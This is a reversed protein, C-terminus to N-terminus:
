LPRTHALLRQLGGTLHRRQAEDRAYTEATRAIVTDLSLRPVLGRAQEIVHLAEEIRESHALLNAHVLYGYYDDPFHVMALTSYHLARTIDGAQTYAVALRGYPFTRGAPMNALIEEFLDIAESAHGAFTLSRALADKSKITPALAVSRRMLPLGQEFRGLRCLTLGISGLTQPDNPQARLAQQARTDITAADADRDTSVGNILRWALLGAQRARALGSAPDLAVAKELLELRADIEARDLYNLQDTKLLIQGLSLEAAPLQAIRQLERDTVAQVLAEGIMEAIREQKDTFAAVSESHRQAGFIEGTGPMAIQWSTRVDAPGRQVNVDAVYDVAYAEQPRTSADRRVVRLSGGNWSVYRAIASVFDPTIDNDSARESGIALAIHSNQVAASSKQAHTDTPAADALAKRISSVLRREYEADSHARKWLAQRDMISLRLGSPLSTTELFVPLIALGQDLAFAIERLCHESAVSRPSVFYLFLSAREIARALADRWRAGAGIHEDFWLNFGCARLRALEAYVV